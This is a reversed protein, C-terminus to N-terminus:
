RTVVANLPVAERCREASKRENDESPVYVLAARGAIAAVVVYLEEDCEHRRAFGLDLTASRWTSKDCHASSCVEDVSVTERSPTRRLPCEAVPGVACRWISGVGKRLSQLPAIFRIVTIV